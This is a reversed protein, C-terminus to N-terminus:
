IKFPHAKGSHVNDVILREKETFRAIFSAASKMPKMALFGEGIFDYMLDFKYKSAAGKCMKFATHMIFSRMYKDLSAGLDDLMNLQQKRAEAQDVKILTLRMMEDDIRQDVPYDKLLQKAVQEDLQMALVALGVSKLGTKIANEPIIKEAKHAYKLLREIQIALDDFEAGGYLRNIFYHAMLQHKPENFLDQHTNQIRNKLWIQAEHLRQKLIPDSHYNLQKYQELLQDLEALKSM